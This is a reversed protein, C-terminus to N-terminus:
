LAIDRGQELDDREAARVAYGVVIAPALILSGAVLAGIVTAAVWGDFSGLLGIFFVVMAALFLGYGIRQGVQALRRARQRKVLVPDASSTM